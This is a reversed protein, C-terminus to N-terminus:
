GANNGTSRNNQLNYLAQISDSMGHHQGEKYCAELHRKLDVAQEATLGTVLAMGGLGLNDGSVISHTQGDVVVKLNLSRM